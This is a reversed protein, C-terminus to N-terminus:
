TGDIYEVKEGYFLKKINEKQRVKSPSIEESSKSYYKKTFM